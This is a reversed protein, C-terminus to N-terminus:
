QPKGSYRDVLEPFREKLKEKATHYASRATTPSIGLNRAIAAINIDQETEIGYIVAQIVLGQNGPLLEGTNKLEQFSEDIILDELVSSPDSHYGEENLM